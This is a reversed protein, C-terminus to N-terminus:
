FLRQLGTYPKLEILNFEILNNAALPLTCLINIANERNQATLIIVARHNEDFYIEKIIDDLILDYVKKAEERLLHEKNTWDAHAIEKETALFKMNKIESECYLDPQVM